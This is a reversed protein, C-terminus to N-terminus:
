RPEVNLLLEAVEVFVGERCKEDCGGCDIEEGFIELKLFIAVAGDAFEIKEQAIKGGALEDMEFERGFEVEGDAIFEGAGIDAIVVEIFESAEPIMLQGQHLIMLRKKWVLEPLFGDHGLLQDVAAKKIVDIGRNECFRLKQIRSTTPPFPKPNILNRLVKRYLCFKM